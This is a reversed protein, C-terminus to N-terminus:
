RGTDSVEIVQLSRSCITDELMICWRSPFSIKYLSCCPKRLHLDQSVWEIDSNYSKVCLRSWIIYISRMESLKAFANSVTGWLLSKYLRSQYPILPFMWMQIVDKRVLLVWITTTFLAVEDFTGATVEPTGWPITNPGTRKRINIFSRGALMFYLTTLKTVSSQIKYPVMWVCLSQSLSCSSRQVKSCHFFVHNIFNLGVLHQTIVMDSAVLYLTEV